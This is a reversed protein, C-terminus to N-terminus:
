LCKFHLMDLDSDENEEKRLDKEVENKRGM